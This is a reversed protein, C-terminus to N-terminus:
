SDTAPQRDHSKPYYRRLFADPQLTSNCLRSYVEVGSDPEDALLYANWWGLAEVSFNAAPDDACYEIAEAEAQELAHDFSDARFLVVREEVIDTEGTAKLFWRFLGKVAYWDKPM